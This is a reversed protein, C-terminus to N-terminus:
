ELFKFIFCQISVYMPLCYNVHKDGPTSENPENDDMM